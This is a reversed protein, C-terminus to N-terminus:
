VWVDDAVAPGESERLVSWHGWVVKGVLRISELLSIYPLLSAAANPDCRTGARPYRVYTAELVDFTCALHL